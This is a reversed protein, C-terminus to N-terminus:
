RCDEPRLEGAPKGGLDLVRHCTEGLRQDLDTLEEEPLMESSDAPPEDPPRAFDPLNPSSESGERPELILTSNPHLTVLKSQDFSAV